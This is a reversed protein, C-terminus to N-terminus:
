IYPIYWSDEPKLKTLAKLPSPLLRKNRPTL